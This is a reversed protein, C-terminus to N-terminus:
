KSRLEQYNILRPSLSLRLFPIQFHLRYLYLSWTLVWSLYISLIQCHALKRGIAYLYSQITVHLVNPAVAIPSSLFNTLSYQMPSSFM